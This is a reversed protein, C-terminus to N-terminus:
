ERERILKALMQCHSAMGPDRIRRLEQAKGDLVKACAERELGMVRRADDECGCGVPEKECHRHCGVGAAIIERAQELVDSM